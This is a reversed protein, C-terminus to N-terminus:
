NDYTTKFKGMKNNKFDRYAKWIFRMLKIKNKGYLFNNKIRLIIANRSRKLDNKFHANYKKSLYLNNRVMYYVRLPSHLTRPTLAFNKLSRHPTVKGLEHQLFINRFRIIKYNKLIAHYCYELDVEDIFLNEDFGGIQKFANLNVVSGSTILHEVEIFNCVDEISYSSSYNVGAMAILKKNDISNICQFYQEINKETFSSDQDMTLLWEFEEKIALSAAQNLRAAIGENSGDHFYFSNNNLQPLKEKILLNETESNDFVYLTSLQKSYSLINQVTQKEDPHYLIVVGAIKM